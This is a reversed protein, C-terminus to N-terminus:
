ADPLLRTVRIIYGMEGQTIEGEIYSFLQELQISLTRNDNIQYYRCDYYPLYIYSAQHAPNIQWYRYLRDTENEYWASFTAYPLDLHLYMFPVVNLIAVPAGNATQKITELDILTGNYMKQISETTRLYKLPGSTLESSLPEKSGLLPIEPPKYIGEAIIYASDWLLFVAICVSIVANRLKETLKKDRYLARTPKKADSNNKSEKIHEAFGLIVCVEAIRACSSFIVYSSIDICLSCIISGICIAFFRPNPKKSLFFQVPAFLLLPIGHDQYFYMYSDLGTASISKIAGHIFCLAAFVLSLIFILNKVTKNNSKKIYIVASAILCLTQGIIFVAGFYSVAKALKGFDIINSANYESGTFLFPLVDTLGTFSGSFILIGMFCVFVLVTGVTVYFFMKKELIFSYNCFFPKKKKERVARILVAIFWVGFAIILLPEAMIGVALIAGIIILGPRSKKKEDVALELFVTMLSMTSVTFYSVSLATQPILGCFLFTSVAGPLKFRRLKKYMFIYYCTNVAIFLYRM